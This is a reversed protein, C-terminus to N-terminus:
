KGTRSDVRKGTLARSDTEARENEPEHEDIENTECRNGRYVVSRVIGPMGRCEGTVSARFTNRSMNNVTAMVPM